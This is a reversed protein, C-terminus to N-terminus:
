WNRHSRDWDIWLQVGVALLYFLACVGPFSVWVPALVILGAATACLLFFAAWALWIKFADWLLSKVARIAEAVEENYTFRMEGELRLCAAILGGLGVAFLWDM